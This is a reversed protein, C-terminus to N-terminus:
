AYANKAHRELGRSRRVMCTSNKAQLQHTRHKQTMRPHKPLESAVTTSRLENEISHTYACVNQTGAHRENGRVKHQISIDPIDCHRRLGNSANRFDNSAYPLRRSVRLHEQQATVQVVTVIGEMLPSLAATHSLLLAYM